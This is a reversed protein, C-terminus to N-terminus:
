DSVSVSNEYNSLSKAYVSGSVVSALGQGASLVHHPANSAPASTGIHIGVTGSMAQILWDSNSTVLQWDGNQPLTVFRTAM